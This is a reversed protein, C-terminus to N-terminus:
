IGIGTSQIISSSSKLQGCAAMVDKGRSLRITVDLGGSKLIEVFNKITKSSSPSFECGIWKNFPIINVKSNIGKLIKILEIACEETDNIGRLMVYEFTIRMSRHQKSYDRCANMLSELNYSDNIPMLSSRLENNPAHLSVALKTKLSKSIENLIPVIGSTSITIKRRSLGQKEDDTLIDVSKLVNKVNLLPEGMGMFVINTLKKGAWLQLCDKAEIVQSIIEETTLNRQSGCHGTHCFKCGLSCGVQSSVCLTNRRQDPIFVSEITKGDELELLFKVTGDSSKQINSVVPRFIYFIENLEDQVKKSLNTMEYFSRKGFRHIWMFVQELRFKQFGHELLIERLEEKTFNLIGLKTKIKHM